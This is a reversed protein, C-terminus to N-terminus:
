MCVGIISDQKVLVGLDGERMMEGGDGGARERAGKEASEEPWSGVTTTVFVKM